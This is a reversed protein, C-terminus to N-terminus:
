PCKELFEITLKRFQDAQKSANEGGVDYVPGRDLLSKRLGDGETVYTEFVNGTRRLRNRELDETQKM